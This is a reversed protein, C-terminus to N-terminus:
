QLRREKKRIKHLLWRRGFYSWTQRQFVCMVQVLLNSKFTAAKSFLCVSPCHLLTVYGQIVPTCAKTKFLLGGENRAAQTESEIQKGSRAPLDSSSEHWVYLSLDREWLVNRDPKLGKSGLDELAKTTSSKCSTALAELQGRLISQSVSYLVLSAYTPM